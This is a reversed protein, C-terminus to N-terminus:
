NNKAADHIWRKSSRMGVDVDADSDDFVDDERMYGRTYMNYLVYMNEVYMTYTYWRFFSYFLIFIFLVTPPSKSKRGALGIASREYRQKYFAGNWLEMNNTQIM